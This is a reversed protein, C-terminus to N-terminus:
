DQASALAISFQCIYNHKQILARYELYYYYSQLIITTEPWHQQPFNQAESLFLIQSLIQRHM